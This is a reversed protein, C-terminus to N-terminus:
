KACVIRTMDTVEQLLLETVKILKEANAPIFGDDDSTWKLEGSSILAKEGSHSGSLVTIMWNDAGHDIEEIVNYFHKGSDKM